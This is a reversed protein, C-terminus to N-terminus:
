SPPSSSPAWRGMSRLVFIRIADPPTASTNMTPSTMAASLVPPATSVGAAALTSDGAGLAELPPGDGVSEGAPGDGVQAIAGVSTVMPAPLLAFGVFVAVALGPVVGAAGVVGLAVRVVLGGFVGVLGVIMRGGGRQAGRVDCGRDGSGGGGPLVMAGIRHAEGDAGPRTACPARM